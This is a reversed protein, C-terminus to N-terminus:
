TAAPYRAEGCRATDVIGITFWRAPSNDHGLMDRLGKGDSTVVVIDGAGAGLRDLTLQPDGYPQLDAGLAQGILLRQGDITHHHRTSTAQGQIRALLM